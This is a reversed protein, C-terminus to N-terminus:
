RRGRRASRRSSAGPRGRSLKAGHERLTRETSYVLSDTQNRLEIEQPRRADEAAHAEAERVM